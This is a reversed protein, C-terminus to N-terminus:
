WWWATKEYKEPIRWAGQGADSWERLDDVARNLPYTYFLHNYKYYDEEIPMGIFAGTYENLTEILQDYEVGPTGCWGSDPLLM